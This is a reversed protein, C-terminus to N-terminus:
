VNHMCVFRSTTTGHSRSSRGECSTGFGKDGVYVCTRSKTLLCVSVCVCVCVQIDLFKKNSDLLAHHARVGEEFEGIDVCVQM